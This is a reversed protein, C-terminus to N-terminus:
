RGWIGMWASMFGSQPQVDRLVADLVDKEARNFPVGLSTWYLRVQPSARVMRDCMKKLGQATVTPTDRQDMWRHTGSFFGLPFDFEVSTLGPPLLQCAVVWQDFGRSACHPWRFIDLKLRRLQRQQFPSLLSLFQTLMFPCCFRFSSRALFLEDFVAKMVFSTLRVNLPAPGMIEPELCYSALDFIGRFKPNEGHHCCCPIGHLKFTLEATNLAAYNPRGPGTYEDNFEDFHNELVTKLILQILEEPLVRLNVLGAARDLSRAYFTTRIRDLYTITLSILSTLFASLSTLIKSDM